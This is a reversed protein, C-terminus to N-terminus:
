LSCDCISAPRQQQHMVAILTSPQSTHLRQTAMVGDSTSGVSDQRQVVNLIFFAFGALLCLLASQHAFPSRTLREVPHDAAGSSCRTEVLDSGVGVPKSLNLLGALLGFPFGFLGGRLRFHQLYQGRRTAPPQRGAFHHLRHTQLPFTATIALIRRSHALCQVTKSLLALDM